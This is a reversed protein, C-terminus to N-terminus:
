VYTRVSSIHQLQLLLQKQCLHQTVCMTLGVELCADVGLNTYPRALLGM